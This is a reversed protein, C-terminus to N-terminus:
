DLKLPNTVAFAQTDMWPQMPQEGRAVAIVWGEVGGLPVRHEIVWTRLGDEVTETLGPSGASWTGITWAGNGLPEGGLLQIEDVPMWEPARMTMRIPAENMSVPGFREIDLFPGTTATARRTTKLATVVAEATPTAGVSIWTRGVGREQGVLRHSDSTGVMTATRGADVMRLWTALVTEAHAVDKGNIVEIADFDWTAGTPSGDEGQELLLGTAEDIGVLDFMGIRGARPHNLQLVSGPSAQRIAAVVEAANMDRHSVTGLAPDWPYANYHGATQESSVEIGPLWLISDAQGSRALHETWDAVADHETTAICDLGEAASAIVGDIPPVSSDYSIASHQHLDCQLWGASPVVQRLQVAFEPAPDGPQLGGIGIQRTELSWAPGRSATVYYSGPPLPLETAGTLHARNGGIALADPGFDPDPTSGRGTVTFRAPIDDGEPDTAHLRIRGAGSLLIRFRAEEGQVVDGEAHSVLHRSASWGRVRYRGPPLATHLEGAADTRGVLAPSMAQDVSLLEITAGPIAQEGGHRAEVVVPVAPVGLHEVAAPVLDGLSRGVLLQRRYTAPVSPLLAGASYVPDSWSAGHPGAFPADAVLLVAHDWAQGGVWPIQQDVGALEFGPGPAFHALGGWGIIDGLDYDEIAASGLNTVTTTVELRALLRDDGEPLLRWSTQVAVNPDDGDVGTVTVQGDDLQLERYAAQRPFVRDLWTSMGDFVDEGGEIAIDVLNGGTQHVGVPHDLATLVFRVGGGSTLLVDGERGVAAPGPLGEDAGLLRISARSQPLVVAASDDDDAPDDDGASDDDGLVAAPASDDDDAPAPTEAAPADTAPEAPPPPQEDRGCSRALLLVIAAAILVAVIQERKM